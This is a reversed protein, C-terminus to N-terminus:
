AECLFGAVALVRGAADLVGLPATATVAARLPLSIAWALMAQLLFVPFFSRWWWRPGFKRRMAAYRYGEGDHRLAIHLGLRLAWLSVVALVLAARVGIRGPVATWALLAFFPAWFADVISCDKLALSALWLLVAIAAMMALAAAPSIM